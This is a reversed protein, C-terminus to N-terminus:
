AQNSGAEVDGLRIVLAVLATEYLEEGLVLLGLVLFGTHTTLIWATCTGAVLVLVWDRIGRILDLPIARALGNRLSVLKREILDCLPGVDDAHPHRDANGACRDGPPCEGMDVIDAALIEVIRLIM